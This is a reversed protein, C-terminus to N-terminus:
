LSAPACVNNWTLDVTSDDGQDNKGSWTYKMTGCMETTRCANDSSCRPLYLNFNESTDDYEININGDDDKYDDLDLGERFTGGSNRMRNLLELEAIRQNRENNMDSCYTGPADLTCMKNKYMMSLVVLIGIVAGLALFYLLGNIGAMTEEFTM